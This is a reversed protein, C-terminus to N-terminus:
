RRKPQPTSSLRSAATPKQCPRSPFLTPSPLPAARPAQLLARCAATLGALLSLSLSLSLSPFPPRLFMLIVFTEWPTEEARGVDGTEGAPKLRVCSAEGDSRPQLPPPCAPMAAPQRPARRRLLRRRRRFLSLPTAEACPSLFRARKQREEKEAPALRSSHRPSGRPPPRSRAAHTDTAPANPSSLATSSHLLPLFWM